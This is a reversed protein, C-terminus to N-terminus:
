PARRPRGVGLSPAAATRAPDLYPVGVGQRPRLPRPPASVSSSAAYM